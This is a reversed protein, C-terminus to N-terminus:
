RRTGPARLVLATQFGGFGSAVSLVTRVDAQRATGPVYDLDCEPDPHELNATPPIVGRDIALACAVAEIAGVAGMSHGIMSKISSIAVRRAHRGLATKFAATEHRDNQRTGSGHANVYDVADPAIRSRDLALTISRALERGDPRLGTMHYGNSHAAYGTVEAYVHAGRGRAHELEELVLAAAGEALVFGDRHLDFPRSAREPADVRTSTARIADFSAVSIPTVPADTGGGVVVDAAGERILAAAHGVADLGSTCGNSVLTVPGEAGATWAVEAAVTSPAMHGYLHPVAYDHDVLWHRGGNSVVTYERELSTAQGTACGVAVGVRTPAIGTDALGSGALAERTAAVLMQTARDMRRIEQADLGSQAPDFDCEGAIPSRFGGADFFTILRTATRGSEMLQWFDKTGTGGPAVVGLGTVVVRRTM